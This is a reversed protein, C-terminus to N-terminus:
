TGICVAPSYKGGTPGPDSAYNKQIVAWDVDVGFAQRVSSDYMHHGDTSLQIRNAMRGGSGRPLLGRRIEHARRGALVARAEHGRLDGYLDVRGRLGPDGQVAGAREEAQRLLLGM